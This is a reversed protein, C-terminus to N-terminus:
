KKKVTKVGRNFGIKFAKTKALWLIKIREDLTLTLGKPGETPVKAEDLVEHAKRVELGFHDM